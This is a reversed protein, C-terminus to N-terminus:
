VEDSLIFAFLDKYFQQAHSDHHVEHRCGEYVNLKWNKQGAIYNKVPELPTIEDDAGHLWLSRAVWKPKADFQELAAMLVRGWRLSAKDFTEPDSQYRAVQVQDSSIKSADVGVPIKLIPFLGGMLKTAVVKLKPAASNDVLGGSFIFGDVLDSHETAFWATIFSGFSHGFVFIPLDTCNSRAEKVRALLQQQYEDFASIDACHDSEPGHGPLNARIVSINQKLARETFDDFRGLHEGYGHTILLMAKPAEALDVQTNHVWM